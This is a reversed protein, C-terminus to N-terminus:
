RRIVALPWWQELLSTSVGGAVLSMLIIQALERGGEHTSASISAPVFVLAVALFCVWYGIHRAPRRPWLVSFLVSAVISPALLAPTLFGVAMTEWDRTWILITAVGVVTSVLFMALLTGTVRLPSM